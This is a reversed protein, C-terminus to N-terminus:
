FRVVYLVIVAILAIGAAGLLAKELHREIPNVVQKAM